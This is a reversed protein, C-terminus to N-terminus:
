RRAHALVGVPDQVVGHALGQAPAEDGAIHHLGYVLRTGGLGLKLHQIALLGLLKEFGGLLVAEV